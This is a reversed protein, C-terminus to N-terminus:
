VQMVSLVVVVDVITYVPLHDIFVHFLAVINQIPLMRKTLSLTEHNNTRQEPPIFQFIYLLWAQFPWRSHTTLYRQSFRNFICVYLCTGIFICTSSISIFFRLKHSNLVCEFYEGISFRTSSFFRSFRTSSFFDRSFHTPLFLSEATSVILLNLEKLELELIAQLLCETREALYFWWFCCLCVRWSLLIVYMNKRM